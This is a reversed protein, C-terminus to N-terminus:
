FNQFNKDTYMSVFYKNMAILFRKRYEQPDTITPQEGRALRKLKNELIKDLTYQQVYDIIGFRILKKKMDVIALISYDVINNKSLLYTDNHLTMTIINKIAYNMTIPKQGWNLLFNNDLMVQNKDPNSIYRNLRSGKLDYSECNKPDVGLFINEM